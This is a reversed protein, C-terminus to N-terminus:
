KLKVRRYLAFTELMLVLFDMTEINLVINNKKSKSTNEISAGIGNFCYEISAKRLDVITNYIM